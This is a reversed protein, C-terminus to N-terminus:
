ILITKGRALSDNVMDVMADAVRDSGIQVTLYIPQGNGSGNGMASVVADYVGQTVSQVIQDNNMVGTGGKYGGVLEPGKERAIFMQGADPLGGNALLPIKGINFGFTVGAISGLGIYKLWDPAKFSIKNLADIIWNVGGIIVNIFGKFTSGVGSFISSFFDGIKQWTGDWNTRFSKILNTLLDFGTGIANFVTSFIIGIGGIIGAIVGSAIFGVFGVIAGIITAFVTLVPELVLYIEMFLQAVGDVMNVIGDWLPKVGEEWMWVFMDVIPQAFVMVGDLFGSLMRGIGDVVEQFKARFAEGRASAETFLQVIAMVVAVIVAVVAVVIAIAGGFSVGVISMTGYVLTELIGGLWGFLSGLVGVSEGTTAAASGLSTIWGIASIIPKFIAIGLAVTLLSVTGLVLLLNGNLKDLTFTVEKTEDNTHKTYGLWNMIADRIGIAKMKVEDLSDSYNTLGMIAEKLKEYTDSTGGGGDTSTPTKILNIEDFGRLSKSLKDAKEQENEIEDGLGELGNEASTYDYDELSFGMMIAFAKVMEKAVMVIANLVPLINGLFGVFISGIWQSLEQLQAKLVKLQNAPSELSRSFDGQANTSQKMIAYFRLMVKEAQTLETVYKNIGLDYLMPQLTQQTVDIGVSRLPKTQGVMGSSLKGYMTSYDTNFLSALDYTLKTLNESVFYAADETIGLASALNMFFGQYRMGESMVTGFAENMTYQFQLGKNLSDGMSVNFLNFNEVLDNVNKGAQQIINKIGMLVSRLTIYGFINTSVQRLAMNMSVTSNRASKTANDVKEVSKAVAQTGMSTQPLTKFNDSLKVVAENAKEVKKALTGISRTAASASSTIQIGLNAVPM